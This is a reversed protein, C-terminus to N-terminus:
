QVTLTVTATRNVGQSTATVTLNYTGAPTGSSGGGGGGGGGGACATMFTAVCILLITAPIWARIQKSRIVFLSCMALALLLTLGVSAERIGNLPWLRFTTPIAVTRATTTITITFPVASNGSVSLPTSPVLCTSNAPAGTCSMSVSGTFGNIPNVQANLNGGQGAPFSTSTSGGPAPGISFDTATGTLPVAQPSGSANDIITVSANSTGAAMPKFTVSMTCNAGVAVSTGCTNTQSFDGVNAGAVAIGTITLAATGSNSLTVTQIGSATGVLQRGFTLPTPSLGISPGTGTGSLAVGHPSGTANDTITVSASRAGLASPTFTVSITCSAGAAVTTGCTNIQAFDVSNAGTISISTINLSATGSNTLTVVQESSSTNVAQNGFVLNNGSLSTTPSPTVVRIRNNSTDAIFLDGAADVAVGCPHNLEAITAPGGDGSFGETENGAVVASLGTAINFRRVVNNGWDGIFLNDLSDTALGCPSSLGLGSALTTILGSVADVRRVVNNGSDSIFLNGFSDMALGNPSNLAANTAAGGDGSFGAMGNGAVTTMNGNTSSVRRVVNNQTDAFIISGTNDFIIGSPVAIGPTLVQTLIGSAHDIRFVADATVALDGQADVSVGAPYNMISSSAPGGGLLSGNPNGTGAVTTIIQSASNVLRIRQAWTDAIYLNDSKDLAVRLPNYLQTSFAPGGDGDLGNGAVTTIVGSSNVKRVRENWWDAFYLNNGADIHMGFPQSVLASSAPGGDGSFGYTGNGVVTTIIGTSANVMRIRSGDSLYINGGGDVTVAGDNLQASTAPGGDGSSGFTGNGAVTTIIGTSADVRRIRYRDAIFMNGSGDLALSSPSIQALSALGGDGLSSGGGAVTTIVHTVSDIKRIRSNWTDAILLNNQADIAVDYPRALEANTATGGDGSFGFTGNGAVTTIIGSIADVRRIRNNLEDAFFINGSNDVALGAPDNFNLLANVALGGDGSFGSRGVGAVVSLQGSGDVRFIRGIASSIILNGAGDMALNTPQMISISLASINNPPGGGAITSITGPTTQAIGSQSVILLIGTVAIGRGFSQLLYKGVSHPMSRLKM